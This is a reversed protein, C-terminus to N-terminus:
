CRRLSSKKCAKILLSLFDERERSGFIKMLVKDHEPDYIVFYPTGIVGFKRDLEHSSKIDLSVVVFREKIYNDVQPDGLVFEEMQICYPCHEGYFYILLEKDQSKALKIGEEFSSVWGQSQSYSFASIGIILALVFRLM